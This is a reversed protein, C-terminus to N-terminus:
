NLRKQYTFRFIKQGKFDYIRFNYKHKKAFSHIDNTEGETEPLFSIFNGGKYFKRINLEDFLENCEKFIDDWDQSLKKRDLNQLFDQVFHRKHLDIKKRNYNLKFYATMDSSSVLFGLRIGACNYYKSLTRTVVVNTPLAGNLLTNETFEVYAEDVIFLSCEFKRALARIEDNSAVLGTPNNPNGIYVVAEKEKMLLSELGDIGKRFDSRKVNCQYFNAIQIVQNYTPDQCIFPVGSCRLHSLVFELADDSGDFVLFDSLGLVETVFNRMEEELLGRPYENFKTVRATGENWNYPYNYHKDETSPLTYKTFGSRDKFIKLM